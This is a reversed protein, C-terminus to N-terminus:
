NNTLAVSSPNAHFRSVVSVLYTIDLWTKTLFLINEVLMRYLTADVYPTYTEKSLTLSELFLTRSPACDDMGFQHLISFAYETQHMRLISSRPVRSHASILPKLHITYIISWNLLSVHTMVQSLYTVSMFSSHYQTLLWTLLISIQIPIQSHSIELSFHLMFVLMGLQLVKVYVM